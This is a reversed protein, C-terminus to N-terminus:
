FTSQSTFFSSKKPLGYVIIQSHSMKDVKFALSFDCSESLPNSITM